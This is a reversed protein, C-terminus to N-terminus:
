LSLIGDQMSFMKSARSAFALEHTVVILTSKHEVLIKELLTIIKAGTKADLNGTPEDALVLHPNTILARAIVARQQQGGSLQNPLHLKRDYLGIKNLLYKAKEQRIKIPIKQYLLPLAVNDLINLYPLLYFKQFIFGIQKNRIKTLEETSSKKINQKGFFYEGSTANDLCGLIHLLTSKGSGSQGVIAIYEQAMIKLTINQIAAITRNNVIYNKSVNHCIILPNTM